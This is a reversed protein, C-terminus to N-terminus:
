WWNEKFWEDFALIPGVPKQVDEVLGKGAMYVTGAVGQAINTTTQCGSVMFFCSLLVCGIILKNM